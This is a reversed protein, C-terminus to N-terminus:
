AARQNLAVILEAEGRSIGCRECLESASMGQRALQTAQAYPSLPAEEERVELQKELAEVRAKLTALEAKLAEVEPNTGLSPEMRAANNKRRKKSFVLTELLYIVTALVVAILLERLSITFADM